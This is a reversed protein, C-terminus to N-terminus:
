PVTLAKKRTNSSFFDWIMRTGNFRYLPHSSPLTGTLYPAPWKHGWGSIQVTQLAESCPWSTQRIDGYLLAEDPNKSCHNATQWLAVAENLSLYERDGRKFPSIGGDVPIHQDTDGHLLILPVGQDPPTFGWTEAESERSGIAGSVVAGAAFLQPHEALVRYALMGGNSMGAIYIRSKDVKFNNQVVDVVDLIFGVDDIQDNAAKGCCHGANWHQLLGFLGIGEPYAVLFGEQDSLHNFGSELAIQKGTSFAGHIVIVLPQPQGVLDFPPVHLLFNRHSLQFTADTDVRYDGQALEGRVALEPLTHSCGVMFFMLCFLSLSRM